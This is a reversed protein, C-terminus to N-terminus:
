YMCRISQTRLITILNKMVPHIVRHVFSIGLIPVLQKIVEGYHIVDFDCYPYNSGYFVHDKLDKPNAKCSSKHVSDHM